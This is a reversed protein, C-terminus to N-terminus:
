QAPLFFPTYFTAFLGFMDNEHTHTNIISSFLTKTNGAYGVVVHVSLEHM